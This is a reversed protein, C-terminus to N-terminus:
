RATKSSPIKHIQVQYDQGPSNIMWGIYRALGISSYGVAFMLFIAAVISLTWRLHWRRPPSETERPISRVISRAFIEIMAILLLLFVVGTAVGAPNITAQPFNRRIFGIWGFFLAKEELSYIVFFPLILVCILLILVILLTRKM